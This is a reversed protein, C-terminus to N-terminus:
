TFSSWPVFILYEILKVCKKNIIILIVSMIWPNMKACRKVVLKDLMVRSKNHRM